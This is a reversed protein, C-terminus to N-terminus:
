SPSMGKNAEVERMYNEHLLLSAAECKRLSLLTTVCDM